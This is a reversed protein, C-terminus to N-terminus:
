EPDVEQTGAKITSKLRDGDVHLSPSDTELKLNKQILLPQRPQWTSFSGLAKHLDRPFLAVMPHHGVRARSPVWPAERTALVVGLM